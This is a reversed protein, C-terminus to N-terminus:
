FPKVLLLGCGWTRSSGLGTGQVAVLADPDTVTAYGKVRYVTARFVQKKGDQETSPQAKSQSEMRSPNGVILRDMDIDLGTRDARSALWGPVERHRAIQKAGRKFRGDDRKERSLVNSVPNLLVEFAVRTGKELQVQDGSLNIVQNSVVPLPFRDWDADTVETGAPFYQQVMVQMTRNYVRAIFLVRNNARVPLTRLETAGVGWLDPIEAPHLGEVDATFPAVVAKHLLDIDAYAARVGPDWMDLTVINRRLLPTNM